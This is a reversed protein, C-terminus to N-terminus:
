NIIQSKLSTRFVCSQDLNCHFRKRLWNLQFSQRDASTTLIITLITLLAQDQALLLAIQDVSLFTNCFIVFSISISLKLNWNNELCAVKISIVFSDKVTMVASLISPWNIITLIVILITLTVQDQALIQGIQDVSKLNWHTEFCAVKFMIVVFDKESDILSLYPLTTLM